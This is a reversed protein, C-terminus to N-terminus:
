RRVTALNDIGAVEAGLGFLRERLHSGIFDAAGTM